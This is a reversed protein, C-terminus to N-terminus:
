YYNYYEEEDPYDVLIKRRPHFLRLKYYSFLFIAIFDALISRINLRPYRNRAGLM